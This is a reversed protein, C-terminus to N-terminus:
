SELWEHMVRGDAVLPVPRGQRDPIMTHADVGMLHYMTALVDMPNVPGENVYGAQADSSGHLHGRKVGGGALVNCYANSWHDRGAGQVRDLIKPTRGHETLCMVLTDDLMGREELDVILSSLARDLGPLLEDDMRSFHDFHTDWATNTIKYEDWFVSVVRGGAELLRRGTLVAQGFLNMGYKERLSMPERSLDLAQRIHPSGLLSWAMQQHKELSQAAPSADLARRKDELQDLLSRRRDLRDLSLGEHMQTAKSILFKVDPKVGVFPDDIEHSGTGFTGTRTTAQSAEAEYETFVPDYGRGLFGGYPGARHFFPNFKSFQFALALNAPVVPPASGPNQQQRLYELVSGLFPHHRPDFPQTESSFDVAPHGTLTFLNSHNNHEHTMSRILTLRDMIRAIKPLHEDIRVGPLVTPISDHEGRVEAPADPKPDFTELQSAAGALYLLIIRRARGFTSSGDDAAASSPQLLSPLTLGGVGLSGVRLLERRGIKGDPRRLTGSINIM